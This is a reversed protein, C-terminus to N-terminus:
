ALHRASLESNGGLAKGWRAVLLATSVQSADWPSPPRALCFTGLYLTSLTADRIQVAPIVGLVGGPGALGHVIGALVSVTSTSLKASLGQCYKFSHIHAHVFDMEPADEKGEEEVPDVKTDKLTTTQATDHTTEVAPLEEGNDDGPPSLSTEETSLAEPDLPADEEPVSSGVHRKHFARMLGYIGLFVM